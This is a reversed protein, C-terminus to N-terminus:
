GPSAQDIWEKRNQLNMLYKKKWQTWFENALHQVRRWRKRAYVDRREFKGPPQTTIKSRMTLLQNPMIPVPGYADNINEVTLPRSKVIAMPEYLFIRLSAFDMRGSVQYLIGTLVSRITRIQREWVGGMHSSAPVNTVFKCDHNTLFDKM